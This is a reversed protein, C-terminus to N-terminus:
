RWFFTTLDAKLAWTWNMEGPEVYTGPVAGFDEATFPKKFRTGDFQIVLLRSWPGSAFTALPRTTLRMPQYTYRSFSPFLDADSSFRSRGIAAGVDLVRNVRLDFTLMFLSLGVDRQEASLDASGYDLANEQSTLASYQFGIELRPRDESKLFHCGLPAFWAMANGDGPFTVKGGLDKELADSTKERGQREAETDAGVPRTLCVLRAEITPGVFPGPGSLRELWGRGIQASAAAPMLVCVLVVIVGRIPQVSM